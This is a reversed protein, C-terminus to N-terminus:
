RPDRVIRGLTRLDKERVGHGKPRLRWWAFVVLALAPLWWLLVSM